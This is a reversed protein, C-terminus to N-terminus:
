IAIQGRVIVFALSNVTLRLSGYPIISLSFWEALVNRSALSSPRLRSGLSTNPSALTSPLITVEVAGKFEGLRSVSWSIGAVPPVM